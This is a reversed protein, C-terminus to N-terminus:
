RRYLFCYTLACKCNDENFMFLRCAGEGDADAAITGRGGRYGVNVYSPCFPLFSLFLFVLISSPRVKGRRQSLEGNGNRQSLITLLSQYCSHM